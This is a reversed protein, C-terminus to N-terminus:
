LCHGHNNKRVLSTNFCPLPGGALPVKSGDLACGPKGSGLYLLVSYSYKRLTM